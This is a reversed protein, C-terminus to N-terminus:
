TYLRLKIRKSIQNLLPRNRRLPLLPERRDIFTIAQEGRGSIMKFRRNGIGTVVSRINAFLEERPTCGLYYAEAPHKWKQKILDQKSMEQLYKIATQQAIDFKEAIDKPTFEVGKSFTNVIEQVVRRYMHFKVNEPPKISVRGHEPDSIWTMLM